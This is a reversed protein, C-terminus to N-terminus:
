LILAAMNFTADYRWLSAITGMKMENFRSPGAFADRGPGCDLVDPM